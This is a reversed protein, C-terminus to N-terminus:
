IRFAKQWIIKQALIIVACKDKLMGLFLFVMM